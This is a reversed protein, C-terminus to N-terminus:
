RIGYRRFLVDMQKNTVIGRLNYSKVTAEIGELLCDFGIWDDLQYFEELEGLKELLFEPLGQDIPYEEDLYMFEKPNSEAM